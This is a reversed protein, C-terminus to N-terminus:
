SRLRSTRESLTGALQERRQPSLLSANIMGLFKPEAEVVTGLAGLAAKADLELYKAFREFDPRSLKNQKGGLPLASDSEGPLYLKSSVFDYCPTLRIEGTEPTLLSWNKLHMDGNGIAFNFLVRQYFNFLELFPDTSHAKIVSGVAELSGNYKAETPLQLLQAMDEKHVKKGGPLRDFRKIIYCLKGDSMRFLGHPPVPLKLEGAMNMVLNENQPLEPYEAPEPKLIHTGGEAAIEVQRGRPELKVSAKIQVGSISMKGAAQSVRSPLDAIGFPIAPAYATGFLERLCKGHYEGGQKIEKQCSFCNM